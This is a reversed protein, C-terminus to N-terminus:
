VDRDGSNTAPATEPENDQHAAADSSTTPTNEQESSSQQQQQEQRARADAEAQSLRLALELERDVLASSFAPGGQPQEMTTTSQGRRRRRDQEMSYQAVQEAISRSFPSMSPNNNSNNSNPNNPDVVTAHQQLFEPSPTPTPCFSQRCVPCQPEEKKSLWSVICDHHFAHLCGGNTTALSSWTVKEGAELPCLCIACNASVQRPVAIEPDASSSSSNITNNNNATGKASEQKTITAPAQEDKATASTEPSEEDDTSAVVPLQAPLAPLLLVRNSEEEEGEEGMEKENEPDAGTSSPEVEMLDSAQIEKTTKALLETLIRSREQQLIEEPIRNNGNGNLFFLNAQQFQQQMNYHQEAMRRELLRRRRYACCTPVICCLVLFVYWLLFAVFEYPDGENPQTNGRNTNSNPTGQGQQADRTNQDTTTGDNNNTQTFQDDNRSLSRRLYSTSNHSDAHHYYISSSNGMLSDHDNLLWGDVISRVLFQWLLAGFSSANEQFLESWPM